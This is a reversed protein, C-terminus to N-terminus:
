LITVKGKHGTEVAKPVYDCWHEDDLKVGIEKCINFHMEACLTDHRKIDQEKALIPCSIIREVAEDFRQCDANAIQKNTICKDCSMQNTIGSRTSSNCRFSETELKLDRRSLWLFANIVIIIIILLLLLLIIMM